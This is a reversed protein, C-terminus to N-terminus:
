KFHDFGSKRNGLPKGNKQWIIEPKGEEIEGITHIAKGFKTLFAQNLSAFKEKEMTFLLEYDEGGSSGLETIDWNHNKAVKRLLTSVPIKEVDIKASKGSAKLIHRLDSSIGDSIDMMAHVYKEKGLFLGENIQPKPNHHRDILEQIDTDVDMQKLIAKLGGGSDGLFGTVCVIDGTQAMSRLHMKSKEVVGVVVVNILLKDPSKTTDGGMLPTNYKESLRYYGKMFDDLFDVKTNKPIGLSLFSYLPKAGMAAIDSLNVALSKYGLEEPSIRDKLFHVDELLLDTSVVHNTTDSVSLVACDDGIGSDDNKILHDFQHAFREIFGFEGIDKLDM